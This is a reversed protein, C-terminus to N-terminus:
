GRTAPMAPNSINWQHEQRLLVVRTAEAKESARDASGWFVRRDGQFFMEISQADPAEVRQLMGRVNPPLAMVAETAATIAASDQPDVRAFEVAGNPQVGRLFVEGQEDVALVDSDTRIFGVAQYESIRVIVTRPWSRGVSVSRVWPVRSVAQAASQSDVRLMNDGPQIGVADRVNAESAHSLGEVKVESVRVVPFAYAALALLVLVTACVALLIPVRRKASAKM